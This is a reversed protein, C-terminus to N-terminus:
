TRRLKTGLKPEKYNVCRTASRKSRLSVNSDDIDSAVSTESSRRNTPRRCTVNKLMSSDGLFTDGVDTENISKNLGVRSSKKLNSAAPTSKAPVTVEHLVEPTSTEFSNTVSNNNESNNIQSEQSHLWSPGEGLNENQQHYVSESPVTKSNKLMLKVDKLRVYPELNLNSHPSSRKPYTSSKRPRKPTQEPSSYENITSLDLRSLSVAPQTITMGNVMPSVCKTQKEKKEKQITETFKEFKRMEHVSEMMIPICSSMTVLAPLCTQLNQEILTLKKCVNHYMTMIQINSNKISNNEKELELKHELLSNRTISLDKNQNSLLAIQKRLKANIALYSNIKKTTYKSQRHSQKLVLRPAM